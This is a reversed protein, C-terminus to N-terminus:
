FGFTVGARVVWPDSYPGPDSTSYSLNYLAVAYFGARGGTPQWFGAGILASGYSDRGTTRDVRVFEYDLYEYEAQLFVPAAVRYRMFVSGGYDSTSVSPSVRGDDRFRYLVSVGGSARETFTMGVVPQVEVYDVTGFSLGVGGGFWVDKAAVAPATAAFVMLIGLIARRM